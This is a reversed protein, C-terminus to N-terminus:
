VEGYIGLVVDQIEFEGQACDITLGSGEQIKRAPDELSKLMAEIDDGDSTTGKLKLQIRTDGREISLGIEVTSDDLQTAECNTIDKKEYTEELIAM